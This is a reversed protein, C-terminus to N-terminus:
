RQVVHHPAQRGRLFSFLFLFFFFSISATAAWNGGIPNSFWLAIGVSSGTAAWNGGIGGREGAGVGGRGGGMM